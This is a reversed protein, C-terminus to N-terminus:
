FRVRALLNQMGGLWIEARSRGWVSSYTVGGFVDSWQGGSHWTIRGDSGVGVADTASIGFIANMSGPDHVQAWVGGLGRRHIRFPTTLWLVGGSADLDEVWSGPDYADVQWSTGEFRSLCGHGIWVDDRGLGAVARIQSVGTAAVSWSGGAYRAARGDWDVVWIDNPGSGWADRVTDLGTDQEAWRNGDWHHAEGDRAFMWVDDTAFGLTTVQDGILYRLWRTGDWHLAGSGAAWVDDLAAAWVGTLGRRIGQTLTAVTGGNVTTAVERESVVWVKSADGHIAPPGRGPFAGASTWASGDWHFLGNGKALWVDNATRGWVGGVTSSGSPFASRDVLTWATGDWHLPRTASMIWAQQPSAAWVGYLGLPIPGTQTASWARGDYHLITDGGVAWVDSSGSGHVGRLTATTLGSAERSWTVGNWRLILGDAGVAWAATSTTGWIDTITLATGSPAARWGQGDWHELSGDGGGVWVDDTGACWVPGLPDTAVTHLSWTAGDWFLVLGADTTIWLDGGVTCVDSAHIQLVLDRTTWRVGNWRLQGGSFGFAWAAGGSAHVTSISDTTRHETWIAGDFHHLARSTAVWIDSSSTGSVDHFSQDPVALAVTWAAGDWRLLGDERAIAWVETPSTGWIREITGSATSAPSWAGNVRHHITGARTGIWLDSADTGWVASIIDTTPATETSWRTGDWHVLTGSYGAAWASTRSPAWVADLQDDARFVKTWRTGDWQSIDGRFGVAWAWSPDVAWVAFLDETTGSPTIAWAAGDWHMIAGDGVAWIDNPGTGHADRMPIDARIVELAPPVPLQPMPNSAATITVSAPLSDQLGDNVVLGIVYAGPADAIFSPTASTSDSLAAMSGAPRTDLSWLFTLPGPMGDPDSSARGDLDVSRGVAVMRDAGADAVPLVNMVGSLVLVRDPASDVTGDNVILEVDFVGEADTALTPSETAASPEATSGAPRAVVNWRYVLPDGDPDHSGSGDLVVADGPDVMVDAGADAVPPRNETRLTTTAPASDAQGDSVVLELVYAGPADIVISPRATAPATMTAASGTPKSTIQWKFTLVDGDPDSSTAGNLRVADGVHVIRDAGAFATPASNM